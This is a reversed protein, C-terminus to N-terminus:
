NFEMDPEEAVKYGRKRMEAAIRYAKHPEIELFPGNICSIQTSAYKDLLDDPICDDMDQALWRPYDGDLYGHIDDPSFPDASLPRPEGASDFQREMVEVYDAPDIADRFEGWTNASYLASHIRHNREAAHRTAFVSQCDTTRFVIEPKVDRDIRRAIKNLAKANEASSSADWPQTNFLAFPGFLARHHIERSHRADWDVAGRSHGGGRLIRAAFEPRRYGEFNDQAPLAILERDIMSNVVSSLDGLPCTVILTYHVREVKLLRSPDDPRIFRPKVVPAFGTMAKTFAAIKAPTLEVDSCQLEDYYVIDSSLEARIEVPGLIQENHELDRHLAIANNFKSVPLIVGIEYLSGFTPCYYNKFGPPTADTYLLNGRASLDWQRVASWDPAESTSLIGLALNWHDTFASAFPGASSFWWSQARLADNRRVYQVAIFSGDQAHDYVAQWGDDTIEFSSPNLSGFWFREPLQSVDRIESPPTVPRMPDSWKVTGIPINFPLDFKERLRKISLFELSSRRTIHASPM